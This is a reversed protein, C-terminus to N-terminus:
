SKRFRGPPKRSPSSRPDAFAPAFRIKCAATAASFLPEEVLKQPKDPRSFQNKADAIAKLEEDLQSHEGAEVPMVVPLNDSEGIIIRSLKLVAPDMEFDIGGGGADEGLPEPAKIQGDTVSLPFEDGLVVLDQFPEVPLAQDGDLVAIFM